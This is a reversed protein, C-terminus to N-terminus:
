CAINRYIESSPFTSHLFFGLKVRPYRKRLFTPLVMLHYDHVWVYDEDPNIVEMVKDAFIKNASVYSQWMAKDFRVGHSPALPLMYHFLPWLYHKCFGHYFKNILDLPLFTPVCKFKDFLLQAVEEQDLPDVEVGLCGVYVVEVDPPFGDGKLPLQNAVIIRREQSLSSSTDSEQSGVNNGDEFESIVGPMSIVRPIRTRDSSYDDLNLLNFCSRSLM